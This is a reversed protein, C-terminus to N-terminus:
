NLKLVLNEPNFIQPVQRVDNKYISIKGKAIITKNLLDEININLKALYDNTLVITFINEPFKKDINLYNIKKGEPALKFSVVKGEVFVVQDLFDKVKDTAITEQSFINISIMLLITFLFNKM